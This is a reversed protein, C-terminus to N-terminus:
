FTVKVNASVTTPRPYSYFDIGQGTDTNFAGIEPDFGPYSSFVYANEINVGITLAKFTNLKRLLSPSFDYTLSINRLRLFDGNYLMRSDKENEGFYVDSPLRVAAIMSNQSEPRWADLVSKLSNGYLQRNEMMTPAIGMLKAGYRYNLDIMLSLNKYRFTNVMNLDGKPLGNGMIVRDNDNIVGDGDIDQYKIDGPKKGYRAAEEVEDLSWTGLRNFVYYSAWEEGERAITNNGTDITEGGIDKVMLKNTSFNFDTSWSFDKEVINRTSLTFEFGTNVIEGLNTWTNSYGTIYPVQKSFLLDKTSKYYYDAIFELRNNLFGLDLGINLQNSTEWKLDQNGLNSLLVYPELTKNFITSNNSYQSITRYNPISANGVSGYSLRLKANNVTEEYPDFFDEESFRWAFSASPFYGYKNNKGFNSAGDIRFTLGFLYKDNYNHNMRFYYSNITNQSMGSGPKHFVTGAGLNYYDFFDDFYNESGSSSSETHYYYWSAGLVFQSQLRNNLFSNTYTFYDENSWRTSVANSIDAYGGNTESVDFLGAKAYSLSRGNTTQLDGKATFQLHNGIKFTTILNFISFNEEYINKQQELLLIPNEAKEGLPYDHKRGWTGDEYKVPVIPPMEVMNRVPGQGFGGEMDNQSRSGTTVIAQIRLWNKIDSQVNVTGTYRKSYTDKVLGGFDQYALSAYLSSKENGSSFSLTHDNTIATQSIEEQWDTDYKPSAILYGYEDRLYNGSADKSYYFLNEMPTQLHPMVKGSYAYARKQIEMYEDANLLDLKRNLFGAGMKAHYTISGTDKKGSKTTILVVGNSGQAGYMATAAADKLIDISEINEANIIQPDVGVVGDMVYIPNSDANISGMGRIRLASGGGPKGSFSVNRVGAVKGALGELINFSATREVLDDNKVSSISTSLERRTMSGYGVAVVEEIGIVDEALRVNISTRNGVAIEQTKMGIFSFILTANEPLDLLTYDGNVDTITGQSTGKVIVTVGPIETGSEDLVKGTVRRRNEQQRIDANDSQAKRTIFVQRGNIRYGNDTGAFLQEVVKEIPAETVKLSTKRNRDVDNKNYFFVYDSASEIAQIIESVAKNKMDVTITTAAPQSAQANTNYSLCLMFCLVPVLLLGPNKRRYKLERM